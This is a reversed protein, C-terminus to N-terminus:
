QGPRRRCPRAAGAGPRIRTGDDLDARAAGGAGRRVAEEPNMGDLRILRTIHDILVIGNRTAIGFLTTFGIVAAITLTGGVSWAGAVGGILALPLNLMVLGADRATGFAPPMVDRGCTSRLLKFAPVISWKRHRDTSDLHKAQSDNGFNSGTAVSLTVEGGYGEGGDISPERALAL